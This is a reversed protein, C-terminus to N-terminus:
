ERIWPFSLDKRYCEFFPAPGHIDERQLIKEVRLLPLANEDEDGSPFPGPPLDLDRRQPNVGAAGLTGGRRGAPTQHEGEAKKAGQMRRVPIPEELFQEGAAGFVDDDRFRRAAEGGKEIGAVALFDREEERLHPKMGRLALNEAAEPFLEVALGKKVPNEHFHGADPDEDAPLASDALAFAGQLQDVPSVPKDRVIEDVDLPLPLPAKPPSARFAGPVEHLDATQAEDVHLAKEAHGGDGLLRGYLDVHFENGPLLFGDEVTDLRLLPPPDDEAHRDGQDADGDTGPSVHRGDHLDHRFVTKEFLFPFPFGPLNEQLDLLATEGTIGAAVTIFFMRMTTTVPSEPEPFLVTRRARSSM